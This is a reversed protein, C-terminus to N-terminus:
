AELGNMAKFLPKGVKFHPVMKTAVDVKTGTRPNRGARAAHKRVTFAGFGRLEVRGGKKLTHAISQFFIKVIKEAVQDGVEPYVTAVKKILDSRKM